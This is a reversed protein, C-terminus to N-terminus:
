LHKSGKYQCHLCFSGILRRDFKVLGCPAVQWFDAERELDPHKLSYADKFRRDTEVLGFPAFHWLVNM